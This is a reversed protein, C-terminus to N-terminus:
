GTQEAIWPPAAPRKEPAPFDPSQPWDRLLQLYNLLELYQEETLTPSRGMSLEDRHRESLWKLQDIVSDRWAREQTEVYEADVPPDVLVLKGAESLRIVQGATIGELLENRRAATIAVADAPIQAASHIADDFFGSVSPSYFIKM